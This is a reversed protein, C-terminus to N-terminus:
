GTDLRAAVAIVALPAGNRSRSESSLGFLTGFTGGVAQIVIGPYQAEFSASVGGLFLGEALAYVPALM